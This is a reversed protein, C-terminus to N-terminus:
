PGTFRVEIANAGITGPPRPGWSTAHNSPDCAHQQGEGGNRVKGPADPGEQRWILLKLRMKTARNETQIKM